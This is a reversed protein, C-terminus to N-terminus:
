EDDEEFVDEEQADETYVASADTWLDGGDLDDVEENDDDPQHSRIDYEPIMLVRTVKQLVQPPPFKGAQFFSILDLLMYGFQKIFTKDATSSLKHVGGCFEFHAESLTYNHIFNYIDARTSKRTLNDRLLKFLLILRTVKSAHSSKM